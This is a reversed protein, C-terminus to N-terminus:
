RHKRRSCSDCHPRYIGKTLERLHQNLRLTRMTGCAQCKAEVVTEPKGQMVRKKFYISRAHETKAMRAEHYAVAALRAPARHNNKPGESRM